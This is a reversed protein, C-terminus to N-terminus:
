HRRCRLVLCGSGYQVRGGGEYDASTANPEDDLQFSCLDVNCDIWACKSQAIMKRSVLNEHIDTFSTSVSDSSSRTTSSASPANTTSVTSSSSSLGTSSSSSLSEYAVVVDGEANASIHPFRGRGAWSCHDWEM